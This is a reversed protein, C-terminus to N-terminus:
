HGFFGRGLKDPILVLTVGFEKCVRKTQEDNRSGSSALITKVGAKALVEVGDPFPFFSDSYAVAGVINHGADRARKCALEAAGVRDQQGVANGKLMGSDGLTITNSNSAAGVAWALMLGEEQESTLGGSKWIDPHKLDLVFTYNPQALFGGRVYRFRRAQDLSKAGLHELAPNVLVRCKDGKRKLMALAERTVGPAIVGDLLRRGEKQRYTLLVEALSESLLFNTMVLGGFIARTDGTVMKQLAESELEIAAAGCPNGHKAGVAICPVKGNRNVAFVAAIHTVTQLLRELDCLNNYSPAGGQVLKFKDLALPDSSGTSYLAAPTQWANEGYSCVQVRHGIMGEYEGHGHYRASALCYNAVVYEAKAALADRFNEGDPEGAALWNIVPQRDAPDAIVVRRGKAASRLMTPGGIDTKEIVSLCDSGPRAIEEELTYLDVCVLDIFPIGLSELECIDAESTTALLGAHVERSLTVVRHGLIAGGGVLEAVDRVPIKANLLTKATGGSALINWGLAVLQAAFEVIGAKSYVSLLATRTQM